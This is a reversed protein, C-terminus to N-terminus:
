SPPLRWATGCEPCVTCADAAASIGALSYACSPCLREALYVSIVHRTERGSLPGALALGLLGGAAVMLAGVCVRVAWPAQSAFAQTVVSSATIGVALGLGVVLLDARFRVRANLRAAFRRAAEGDPLRVMVWAPDRIPCPRGRHDNTRPM